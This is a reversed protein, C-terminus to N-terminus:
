KKPIVLEQGPYILNPNRIKERNARYILKWESGKGYIEDKNAIKILFDGKKVRYTEPTKIKMSEIETKLAAYQENQLTISEELAKDKQELDFKLRAIETVLNKNVENVRDINKNVKDISENAKQISENAASIAQESVSKSEVSTKNAENATTEAKRSIEMATEAIAKAKAAEIEASTPVETVVPAAAPAAAPAKKVETTVAPRPQGLRTKPTATVRAAPELAESPGGLLYGQNGEQAALWSASVLFVFVGILLRIKM